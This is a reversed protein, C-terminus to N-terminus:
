ICEKYHLIVGNIDYNKLRNALNDHRFPANKKFSKLLTSTSPTVIWLMKAARTILTYLRNKNIFPSEYRNPLFAIVYPYQNGQAKDVTIAYAHSLHKVLLEIHDENKYDNLSRFLFNHSVNNFNVTIYNHDIFTVVGESGNYIKLHNFNKQLIVRDNCKFMRGFNDMVGSTKSNYINQYGDNLLKLIKVNQYENYPCIIKLEEAKIHNDYYTKVIDFVDNIDGEVINFVDNEVIDLNNIINNANILIGDTSRYNKTLTYTPIINSLILNYFFNGPDIPQLQNIDGVFLLQDVNNICQIFKNFLSSTVMSAEDIILYDTNIKKGKANFNYIISDMTKADSGTVNRLNEVAKGTFSTLLFNLGRKKLNYVIEKICCTKGHGAAASIIAISHDLCCQIVFKQEDSLDYRDYEAKYRIFGNEFKNLKIPKFPDTKVKNIIFNAVNTEINYQPKLYISSLDFVLGKINPDTLSHVSTHKDNVLQHYIKRIYTGDNIMQPTPEINLRSLITKCKSLPITYVLYPNTLCLHYMKTTSKHYNKIEDKNVDILLLRRLNFNKYWYKLLKKINYETQGFMTLISESKYKKWQEALDTIYNYCDNVSLDNIQNYFLSAQYYTINYLKIFIGTIINSDAYIKIMPPKTIIYNDDVVCYIRDYIKIPLKVNYKLTFKGNTTQVRFQYDNIIRIITGTIEM